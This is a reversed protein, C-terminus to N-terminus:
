LRVVWTGIDAEGAWDRSALVKAGRRLEIRHPGDALHEIAFSGDAALATGLLKTAKESGLFARAACETDPLEPTVVLRLDERGLDEPLQVQGRVAGTPWKFELGQANFPELAMPQLLASPLDRDGDDAPVLAVLYRGRPVGDAEFRGHGRLQAVTLSGDAGVPLFAPVHAKDFPALVVGSVSLRNSGGIDVREELDVGKRVTFSLNAVAREDPDLRGKVIYITYRGGVLGTRVIKGADDVRGREHIRPERCHLLYYMGAAPAGEGDVVTVTISGRRSLRIEGVDDSSVAVTEVDYDPHEVRLESSGGAQPRAITFTGDEAVQTRRTTKTASFWGGQQMLLHAGPVPQGTAADAVRGSTLQAAAREPARLDVDFRLSITGGPIVDVKRFFPGSEPLTGRFEGHGIGFCSLRVDLELGEVVLLDASHRGKRCRPENLSKHTRWRNRSPDENWFNIAQLGFLPVAVGAEDLVEVDLRTKILRRMEIVPSDGLQWSTSERDGVFGPHIPAGLEYGGGHFALGAERPHPLAFQGQADTTAQGRRAREPHDSEMRLLWDRTSFHVTAGEVPQGDMDVVRGQVPFAVADRDLGPEAVVESRAGADLEDPAAAVETSAVVPGTPGVSPVAAGGGRMTFFAGVSLACVLLAAAAIRLPTAIAFLAAVGAAKPYALPALATAWTRRDGHSEDLQARLAEIGRRTRSRVTNVPVGLRKAVARPPLDEFFRLVVVDRFPPSLANVADALMRQLEAREVIEAASAVTDTRAAVTERQQRRVNTRRFRAAVKHTVGALWRRDADAPARPGTAALLAEQAVDDADAAGVLRTALRRLFPTDSLLAAADITSSENMAPTKGGADSDIGLIKVAKWLSNRPTM